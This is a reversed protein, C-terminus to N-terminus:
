RLLFMILDATGTPAGTKTWAVTLGDSDFTQVAASQSAGAAQLIFIAAAGSTGWATAVAPQDDYISGQTGGQDCFGWSAGAAGNIAALFIAAKPKFGAGTYSVNGSAATLDRGSIIVKFWTSAWAVGPTAGSDAIIRDGDTGVAMKALTKAASAWFSDGKAAIAAMLPIETAGDNWTATRTTATAIASVDHNLKKTVDTGDTVTVKGSGKPRLELGINTDGGSAALFPNTATAANTLTLENVASAVGAVKLLENGNSDGIFGSLYLRRWRLASSGLDRADDTSPRFEGVAGSFKNEGNKTLAANIGDALDQDHTDHQSALINNGADRSNAWTTSGTQTGNTRTFSGSGDWPM